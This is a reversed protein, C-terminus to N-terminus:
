VDLVCAIIYTIHIANCMHNRNFKKDDKETVTTRENKFANKYHM